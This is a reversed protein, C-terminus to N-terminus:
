RKFRKAAKGTDPPHGGGVWDDFAISYRGGHGDGVVVGEGSMSVRAGAPKRRPGASDRCHRRLEVVELGSEELDCTAGVVKESFADGRFTCSRGSCIRPKGTDGGGRPTFVSPAVGLSRGCGVNDRSSANSPGLLGLIIYARCDCRSNGSKLTPRSRASRPLASQLVPRPYTHRPERATLSRSQRTSIASPTM